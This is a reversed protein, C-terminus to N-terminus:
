LQPIPALAVFLHHKERVIIDVVKIFKSCHYSTHHYKNMLEDVQKHTTINLSDRYIEDLYNDVTDDIECIYNFAEAVLIEHKRREERKAPVKSKKIFDELDSRVELLKKEAASLERSM